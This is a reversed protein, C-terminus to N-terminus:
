NEPPDEWGSERALIKFRSMDGGIRVERPVGLQLDSRRVVGDMIQPLRDDPTTGESIFESDFVVGRGTLEAEYRATVLNRQSPDESFSSVAVLGLERRGKILPPFIWIRDMSEVGLRKVLLALLRGVADPVPSEADGRVGTTGGDRM